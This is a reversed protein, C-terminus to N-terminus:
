RASGSALESGAHIAPRASLRGIKRRVLFRPRRGSLVALRRPDTRPGVVIRGIQRHIESLRGDEDAVLLPLGSATALQRWVAVVETECYPGLSLAVAGSRGVLDIQFRGTVFRLSFGAFDAGVSVTDSGVFTAAQGAWDREGM